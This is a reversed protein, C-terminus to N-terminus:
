PNSGETPAACFMAHMMSIFESVRGDELRYFMHKSEKRGVIFGAARLEAIQQSLGPQRIGLTDELDRVSREGDVLACVIMLRSPHALKKLFEAAEGANDVMEATEPSLDRTMVTLGM